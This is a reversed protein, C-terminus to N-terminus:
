ARRVLCQRTLLPTCHINKSPHTEEGKLVKSLFLNVITWQVTRVHVYTVVRAPKQKPFTKSKRLVYPRM